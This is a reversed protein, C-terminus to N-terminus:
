RSKIRSFTIQLTFIIGRVLIKKFFIEGDVIHISCSQPASFFYSLFLMPSYM